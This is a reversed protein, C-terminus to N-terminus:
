TIGAVWLAAQLRSELGLKAYIATCHNKVTQEAVGLAGAIQLNSKGCGILMAVQRERDSLPRGRMAEPGHTEYASHM